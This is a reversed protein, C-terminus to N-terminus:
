VGGQPYKFEVMVKLLTTAATVGDTCNIGGLRDRLEAVTVMDSVLTTRNDPKTASVQPLVKSVLAKIQPLYTAVLACVFVVVSLVQIATM